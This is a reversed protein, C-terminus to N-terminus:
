SSPRSFGVQRRKGGCIGERMLDSLQSNVTDKHIGANGVELEKFVRCVCNDYGM